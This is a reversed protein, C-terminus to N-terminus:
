ITFDVELGPAAIYTPKGTAKEIEAKFREPDANGHSLHLLMIERCNELGLRGLIRKCSQLECHSIMLRERQSPHLTGNEINECVIDDAYNCEIMVHEIGDFKYGLTVSDTMFLTRGSEEHMIVFGLCPVDHKSEFAFVRFGGIRCTKMPKLVSGMASIVDGHLPRLESFVDEIAHVRIGCRCLDVVSRSHDKHRHTVVCGVVGTLNFDLARKIDRIPLGCEVILTERGARFLYCNGESSSGVVSVKM